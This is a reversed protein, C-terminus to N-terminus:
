RFVQSLEIELDLLPSSLVEDDRYLGSRRYGSETWELVEATKERPDVLWYERIGYRAYLTRKYTRDREATAPSLIEVVLDPAGRIGEEAIIESHEKAIFIIDPQLVIEESLIVDLPAHLVEGLGSGEIHEILTIELRKSIRQHYTTPSPVMVLEGEWLEFRKTESEPLSKYDKYTFKIQVKPQAM